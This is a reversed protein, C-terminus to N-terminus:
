RIVIIEKSSAYPSAHFLCSIVYYYKSNDTAARTCSFMTRFNGEVCKVYKQLYSVRLLVLNKLMELVLIRWHIVYQILCIQGIEFGTCRTRLGASRNHFNAQGGVWGDWQSDEACVRSVRSQIVSRNLGPLCGGTGVPYSPLGRGSIPYSGGNDLEYMIMWVLCKSEWSPLLPPLFFDSPVSL